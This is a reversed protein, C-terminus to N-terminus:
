FCIVGGLPQVQLSTNTNTKNIKKHAPLEMHRNWHMEANTMMDIRATLSAIIIQSFDYWASHVYFIGTEMSM